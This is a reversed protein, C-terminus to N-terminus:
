SSNRSATTRPSRNLRGGSAFVFAPNAPIRVFTADPVSSAVTTAAATTTSASTSSAAATSSPAAPSSSDCAASSLSAGVTGAVGLQLLHRRSIRMPHSMVSMPHAHGVREHGGGLARRRELRLARTRGCDARELRDPRRLERGGTRVRSGVADAPQDRPRHSEHRDAGRSRAPLHDHREGRDHGSQRASHLDALRARRRCTGRRLGMEHRPGHPRVRQAGRVVADGALVDLAGGGRSRERHDDDRGGCGGAHWSGARRQGHDPQERSDYNGACAHQGVRAPVDADRRRHLREPERHPHLHRLLRGGRGRGPVLVSSAATAGASEHGGNWLRSSTTGFYMSREAVGPEAFTVTIGFSRDILEAILGTYVTTRSTAALTYTRVVPSGGEILFSVTAVNAVAQPNALLLYTDFFGQSGEAFLWEHRAGAAAKESHAGYGTADWRMTREVALPLANASTVVSSIAAGELGSIDNVLITTHGQAPAVLSQSVTAGNDKLYTVTVPADVANPNAILLDLAFFSSTAGEALYYSFRDVTITVSASGVSGAGNVAVVTLVNSGAFLPVEAQWNTTGTATGSPGRSSTWTVTRVVDSTPSAAAGTLTVFPSTAESSATAPSTVTVGPAPVAGVTVLFTESAMLAGDSVTVTITAAGSQNAAPTVRVTRSAGSGGFVISANPVLAANSSAGSVTLAAAATEADNITFPLAATATNADIVQDGIASITPATNTAAASVVITLSGTYGNTTDGSLTLMETSTGDSFVNDSANTLSNQGHSTYPSVSAYVLQSIAEPFALQTTKVTVGGVIVKVHIHTARGAYWGPYITTFTARGNADAVQLGRLFTMGTGDYGPQSYESYHGVADCQWIEVSAGAIPACGSAANVVTLVLQLPLGPRGERIDQRYFATHSPYPGATESATQVCSTQAEIESDSGPVLPTLPTSAITIGLTQLLQRRTSDM